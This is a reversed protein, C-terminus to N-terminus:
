NTLFRSKYQAAVQQWFEAFKDVADINLAFRGPKAVVIKLFNLGRYGGRWQRM